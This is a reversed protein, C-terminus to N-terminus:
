AEAEPAPESHRWRGPRGARAERREGIVDAAVAAILVFGSIAKQWYPSIGVYISANGLMNLLLLGLLGGLVSGRGGTLSAGGIVAAAIVDLALGDFAQSTANGLRAAFLTGAIGALVGSFAYLIIGIKVVRVGNLRSAERDGGTAYVHWGFRTLALVVAFVSVISVAFWVYTLMGGVRSQGLDNFGQPFGFPSYGQTAGLAIGTTAWWTGLTTMLPNMGLAEILVGNVLGVMLGTAFGALLAIPWPTGSNTLILGATIGSLTATGDISLDFRGAALLFVTGVMVIADIGMNEFIVKFNETRVFDSNYAGVAAIFLLDFVLLAVTRRRLLNGLATGVSRTTTLASAQATAEAM